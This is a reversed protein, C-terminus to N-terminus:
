GQTQLIEWTSLRRGPDERQGRARPSAHIKRLVHTGPLRELLGARWVAPVGQGDKSGLTLWLRHSQLRRGGRKRTMMELAQTQTESVSDKPRSHSWGPVDPTMIQPSKLTQLPSRDWLGAEENRLSKEEVQSRWNGGHNCRPGQEWWHKAVAVGWQSALEM